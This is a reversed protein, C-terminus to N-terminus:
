PFETLMRRVSATTLKPSDPLPAFITAGTFDCRVKGVPPLDESSTAQRRLYASVSLRAARARQRISAAEAESVKFTLTPM